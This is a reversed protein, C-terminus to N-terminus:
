RWVGADWRPDNALWGVGIDDPPHEFNDTCNDLTVIQETSERRRSWCARLDEVAEPPLSSLPLSVGEVTAVREGDVMRITCWPSPAWGDSRWGFLRLTAETATLLPFAAVDHPPPSTMVM